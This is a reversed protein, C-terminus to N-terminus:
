AWPDTARLYEHIRQGSIRVDGSVALGPVVSLNIYRYKALDSGSPFVRFGTALLSHPHTPTYV